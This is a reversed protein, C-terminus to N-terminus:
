RPLVDLLPIFAQNEKAGLELLGSALYDSRHKNVINRTGFDFFCEFINEQPIVEFIKKSYKRIIELVEGDQYILVRTAPLHKDGLGDFIRPSSDFVIADIGKRVSISLALGGGLSHGTVIIKENPHSERYADFAERAQKYQILAGAMLNGTPWDRKSDTGRFAMVAENTGQKKYIDYALGSRSEKTPQDTPLDNLGVQIWGLKELAFKARDTKHYANSSMMAYVVYKEAVASTIVQPKFSSKWPFLMCANYSVLFFGLTLIKGLFLAYRNKVHFM